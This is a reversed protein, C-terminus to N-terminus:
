FGLAKMVDDHIRPRFTRFRENDRTPHVRNALIVVYIERDPDIWLSTGTSGTHGFARDSLRRGCSSTPLMTDWALVRSSSPVGARRVFRELTHRRALATISKARLVLRAFGGVASITGFLGAHGAVGGLAWASTTSRRSSCAAKAVPRGGNPGHAHAVRAATFALARRSSSPSRRFQDGLRSGQAEELIFGLLIFGLDNLDVAHAARLRAASASPTSSNRASRAAAISRCYAALGSAHALLDGVTVAVRDARALRAALPRGSGSRCGGPTSRGCRSRPRCIVETLSALDFVTTDSAPPAGPEYTIAGAADRWAAGSASGTEIVVAPTARDAVAQSLLARVGDFKAMVDPRELHPEGALGGVPDHALRDARVVALLDAHVAEREADGGRRGGRRRVRGVLRRAAHVHRPPVVGPDRRQHVVRHGAGRRRGPELAPHRLLAVRDVVGWFATMGRTVRLYHGDAHCARTMPIYFDGLAAASSSNLSSSLTSMAAAFIAALVLSWWGPPLHTVIFPSSRDTLLRGNQTFAAIEGPAYGTYYVYLMVGILLFLVFQRLHPAGSWLLAKRADHGASACLYRQVMLQDTGHTATTLFAGGIVGSWFTYSCTFDWTFDFLQFRGAATGVRVVEPWGGPIALLLLIAAVLAGALYVVLQAVDTWIVAAMGGLYTYLITAAGMILVSAVLVTLTPDISPFWARAAADIAPLTLLLVALVLGTAFV